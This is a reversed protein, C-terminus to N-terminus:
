KVDALLAKLKRNINAITPRADADRSGAGTTLVTVEYDADKLVTAFEDVDREPYDLASLEEHDYEKVGVLFALKRGERASEARSSSTTEDLSFLAALLVAGALGLFLRRM